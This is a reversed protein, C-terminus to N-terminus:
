TYKARKKMRRSLELDSFDEETWGRDDKLYQYIGIKECVEPPINTIRM